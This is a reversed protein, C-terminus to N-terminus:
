FYQDEIIRALRSKFRFIGPHNQVIHNVNKKRIFVRPSYRVRGKWKEKTIKIDAYQHINTGLVQDILSAVERAFRGAVRQNKNNPLQLEWFSKYTPEIHTGRLSFLARLHDRLTDRAIKEDKENLLDADVIASLDSVYEPLTIPYSIKGRAKPIGMMYFARGLYAGNERFRMDFFDKGSEYYLCRLGIEEAISELNRLNEKKENVTPIFLRDMYGSWFVWSAIININYFEKDTYRLPLPATSRFGEIAHIVEPKSKNLDKQARERGRVGRVWTRVTNDHRGVREAILMTSRLGRKWFDLAKHYDQYTQWGEKYTSSIDKESVVIINELRM